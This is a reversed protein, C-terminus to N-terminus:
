TVISAPIQPPDLYPYPIALQTNRRCIEESLAYLERRLETVMPLVAQTGAFYAPPFKALPRETRRSLLRVMAIQTSATALDPLAALLDCDSWTLGRDRPPPRYLAGPVNPIFGFYDYQGNNVAAHGASATYVVRRLCAALGERTTFGREGGELDSLAAGRASRLEAHFRALERDAAVEADDAYFFDVMRAVYRGIIDWLRLADDRWPYDPLAQPDDVGRRRLDEPVDHDLLRWQDRWARAMLEFAGKAGIAMTRDIPGDPALLQTRASSNVAITYTLHPELLKYVPHGRPLTRRLAVAFLEMVLHTNLLHEVVEHVQADASQTYTKVALWLGPDDKPTFIPGEAPDQFLQIAIPRLQGQANVYFLAMPHALYRGPKVSLGELIAYNCWYLGKRAMASALTEGPDLLGEVLADTVPFNDPIADFRRILRPNVGAVRQRAFEADERWRSMIPPKDGFPMLLLAYVDLGRRERLWAELRALALGLMSAGLNRYIRGQVYPSYHENEPPNRVYPPLPLPLTQRGEPDPEYFDFVRRYWPPPSWDGRAGRPETQIYGHLFQYRGRSRELQAARDELGEPTEHQPLRPRAYVDDSDVTSVTEDSYLAPERRDPIPARQGLIRYALLRARRPWWGGLRLTDISPGDRFHEAEITQLVPHPLHRLSFLCLNGERYDLADTITVEALDRWPHAREDWPYLSSLEYDRDHFDQWALLQIQFRYRVHERDLRARYEDKLYNRGRREGARAEQFWPTQLASQPPIGDDEAEDQWPILRFKAYRTVGDDAVFRLPIQSYYHLHAFSEPDLRLADRVNMYCRPNRRFYGILHARGGRIRALMFQFFTDMNWFPTANGNNMLMDFPSAVPADAFKLSAARVVLAADDLFSVSAHRLRCPFVRGPVFFPNAPLDLADLIRVQGRTVLGNEHSMRERTLLSKLTILSIIVLKMFGMFFRTRLLREQYYFFLDRIAQAM